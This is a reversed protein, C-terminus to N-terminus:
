YSMIFITKKVKLHYDTYLHLHLENLSFHLKKILCQNLFRAVDNSTKLEKEIKEEEEEEANKKKLKQKLDNILVGKNNMSFAEVRKFAMQVNNNNSNQNQFSSRKPPKPPMSFGLMARSIGMDPRSLPSLSASELSFLSSSTKAGFNYAAHANTTSSSSSISGLGFSSHSSTVHPFQPPPPPPPPPLPPMSFMGMNNSMNMDNRTSPAASSLFSSSTSGGSFFSTNLPPPTPLPMSCNPNSKFLSLNSFAPPRAATPLVHLPPPAPMKIIQQRQQLQQQLQNQQQQQRQQQISQNSPPAHSVPEILKDSVPVISKQLARDPTSKEFVFSDTNPISDAKPNDRKMDIGDWRSKERSRSPTSEHYFNMEKEENLMCQMFGDEPEEEDNDDSESTDVDCEELFSSRLDVQPSSGGGDDFLSFGMDEQEEDDDSIRKLKPSRSRSRSLCRYQSVYDVNDVSIDTEGGGLCKDEFDSESESSRPKSFLMLEEDDGIRKLNNPSRSRSRNLIIFNANDVSMDTGGDGSSCENVEFKKLEYHDSFRPKRQIEQRRHISKKKFSALKEEKTPSPGGRLRLVMNVTAEKQINYDALTRDDDLQKGAFILRQQDPPIGEKDQILEKLEAITCSQESSLTVTKGTLTKVYFQTPRTLESLYGIENRLLQM